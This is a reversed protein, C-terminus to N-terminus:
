QRWFNLTNFGLRKKVMYVAILNQSALAIATAIAAGTAGYIPTLLFGLILALPGSFLVVNRMDKEHGTMNLLFGVSGTVVNIFQGIVLIQLILSAQKYEAGFFSLIFEPFVLMFVLVPTALVIMLRSCLLSTARLEEPKGQKASAAFRPAAVINVAILVFSTLMAVRQAVSFFAVSELAM